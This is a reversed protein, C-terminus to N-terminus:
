TPCRDLAERLSEERPDTPLSYGARNMVYAYGTATDPDAFAFSGGAGPHGFARSSSGFELAPAKKKATRPRTTSRKAM